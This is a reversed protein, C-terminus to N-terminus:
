ESLEHPTPISGTEQGPARQKISKGTLTNPGFQLTPLGLDCVKNATTKFSPATGFLTHPTIGKTEQSGQGHPRPKFDRQKMEELCADYTNRVDDLHVPPRKTQVFSDVVKASAQFPQEPGSAPSFQTGGVSGGGGVGQTRRFFLSKM